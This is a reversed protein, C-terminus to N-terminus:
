EHKRGTILDAFLGEYKATVADWSYIKRVRQVAKERYEIVEAQNGLLQVLKSTLGNIGENGAFLVGADGIVELNAPTSNVLVCNGFGMQDLLVPRTGDVASPLVFLYCHSSLSHYGEGFIYGTFIVNKGSIKRLKDKYDESYPADGIIVLKYETRLDQFAQILFHANNEPVLRGVFLIYKDKELAYKKLYSIDASKIINAGYPIFVTKTYYERLYRERIVQSDSIVVHPFITAFRECLKLYKKELGKWKERKWDEGDVNLITKVGMLRTLLTLPSNGVICFYAIDYKQFIAHIISIFTHFLTDLHKNRITPFAILRVGNFTKLSYNIYQKRNYVTVKHGRKALRIALNEYFTEFGSYCAPIGRSGLFAIKM